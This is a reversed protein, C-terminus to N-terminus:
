IEVVTPSLDNAQRTFGAFVRSKANAAAMTRHDSAHKNWTLRVRQLPQNRNVFITVRLRLIQRPFFRRPCILLGLM